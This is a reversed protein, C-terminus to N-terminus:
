KVVKGNIIYGSTQSYPTKFYYWGPDKGGNGTEMIYTKGNIKCECWYHQWKYSLSGRWGKILYANYGLYRMMAAMAGNYQVCQGMKYNFIADVYSKSWVKDYSPRGNKGDAYKVNQNIWLLTTYLKQDNTMGKKFHKEAFKQLTNLDKTNLTYTSEVKTNKYQKDYVKFSLAQVSSVIGSFNSYYATKNVTRYARVRYYYNYKTSVNKYTHSTTKNNKITTLLKYDGGNTSRYIQYGSVGSVKSWSIKVNRQSYNMKVSPTVLKTRSSLSAVNSYLNKNGYKLRAKVKYKYSTFSALKTDTFSNTKLKKYLSYKKTRSNYKYLYYESCKVNTWTLKLASSSASDCKFSSIKGINIKFSVSKTGTYNGCFIVTAKATGIKTNSSYSVKYDTNAKLKKGNLTITLAPKVAKGTYAQTPIAKITAKEASAAKINFNVTKTSRYNGTGTIIIQGTGKNINNKYSVTYDKGNTLAQSDYKVTEKPKIQSGTFTFSSANLSVSANSINGYASYDFGNAIAYKEGETGKTCYIKFNPIKTWKYGEEYYDVENTTVWEGLDWNYEEKYVPRKDEEYYYGLSNDTIKTVTYPIEISTYYPETYCEEYDYWDDYLDYGVHTDLETVTFSSTKYEYDNYDFYSMKIKEPLKVSKVKTTINSVTATHKKLNISVTLTTENSGNGDSDYSYENDYEIDSDYDNIYEASLSLEAGGFLGTFLMTSSMLGCVLKKIKKM